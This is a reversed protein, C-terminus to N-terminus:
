FDVSNEVKAFSVLDYLFLGHIAPTYWGIIYAALISLASISDPDSSYWCYAVCQLHMALPHFVGMENPEYGHQEKFSSETGLIRQGRTLSTSIHVEVPTTQFFIRISYPYHWKKKQWWVLYVHIHFFVVKEAYSSEM